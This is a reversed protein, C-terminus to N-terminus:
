PYRPITIPAPALDARRAGPEAALVGVHGILLVSVILSQAFAARVGPATQWAVIRVSASLVVRITLAALVLAVLVLRLVTELLAGVVARLALRAAGARRSGSSARARASAVNANGHESYKM